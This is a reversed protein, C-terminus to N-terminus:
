PYCYRCSGIAQLIGRTYNPGSDVEKDSEEGSASPSRASGIVEGSRVKDRM